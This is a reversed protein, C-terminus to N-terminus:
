AALISTLNTTGTYYQVSLEWDLIYAASDYCEITIEISQDDYNRM